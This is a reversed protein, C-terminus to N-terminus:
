TSIFLHVRFVTRTSIAPTSFGGIVGLDSGLAKCFAYVWLLIIHVHLECFWGKEEESGPPQGSSVSTEMSSPISVSLVIILHTLDGFNCICWFGSHMCAYMYM